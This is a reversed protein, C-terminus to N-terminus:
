DAEFKELDEDLVNAEEEKKMDEARKQYTEQRQADFREVVIKQTGQTGQDGTSEVM